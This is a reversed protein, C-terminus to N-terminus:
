RGGGTGFELAKYFSDELEASNENILKQVQARTEEDFADTLWQKARELATM